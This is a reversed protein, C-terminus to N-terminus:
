FITRTEGQSELRLVIRSRFSDIGDLVIGGPFSSTIMPKRDRALVFDYFAVEPNIGAGPTTATATLVGTEIDSVVVYSEMQHPADVVIRQPDASIVEKGM